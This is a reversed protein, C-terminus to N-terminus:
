REKVFSTQKSHEWKSRGLQATEIMNISKMGYEKKCRKFHYFIEELESLRAESDSGFNHPHWWLHFIKKSKAAAYISKIIRKQRYHNLLSLGKVPPRYFRSSPVNCLGSHEIINQWSILHHGSLNVYSDILRFIRKYPANYNDINVRYM